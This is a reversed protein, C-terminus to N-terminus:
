RLISRAESKSFPRDLGLRATVLRSLTKQFNPIFNVLFNMFAESTGMIPLYNSGFGRAIIGRRVGGGVGVSGRLVSLDSPLYPFKIECWTLGQTSFEQECWLVLTASILM